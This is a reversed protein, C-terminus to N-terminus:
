EENEAMTHSIWKKAEEYEEPRNMNFFIREIEEDSLFPFDKENVYHVDADKLFQRIKLKGTRLAVEMRDILRKTYVAFLPHMNGQIIPVVAERNGLQSLLFDVVRNSIFPMDCAVVISAEEKAALLGAHMGALPGLSPFVDSVTKMHLSQYDEMQNTVLIYETIMNSKKLEHSIREISTMESLPLFAKNSGMRSSKGGSLIIAGAKM